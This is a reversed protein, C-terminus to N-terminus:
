INTQVCACVCVNLNMFEMHECIMMCHAKRAAEHMRRINWSGISLILTPHKVLTRDDPRMAYLEIYVVWIITKNVIAELSKQYLRRKAGASGKAAGRRREPPLTLVEMAVKEPCERILLLLLLCLITNYPIVKKRTMEQIISFHNYSLHKPPVGVCALM